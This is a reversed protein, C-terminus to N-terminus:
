NLDEKVKPKMNYRASHMQQISNEIEIDERTMQRTSEDKHM